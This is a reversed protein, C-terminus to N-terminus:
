GEDQAGGPMAIRYEPRLGFQWRTRSLPVDRVETREQWGDLPESTYVEAAPAADMAQLVDGDPDYADLAELPGDHEQVLPHFPLAPPCSKRGLCPTFVPKCLAHALDNLSHPPDDVRPWITVVFLTDVLYERTSLLTGPDENKPILGGVEDARTRYTRKALRKGCQITHYDAMRAGKTAPQVAMAYARDLETHREDEDRRIGLAGALLGLVGSRSPRPLSPRVEGVAVAGWSQMPGYIQFTLYRQM